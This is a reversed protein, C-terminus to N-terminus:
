SPCVESKGPQDGHIHARQYIGERELISSWRPTGFEFHWWEGSYVVFDQAWMAECLMRRLRRVPSDIQEFAATAADETFADFPTGLGLAVGDFSLTLDVTGGSMHPSPLEDDESPPALYGPPLLPDSYAAHFLESQLELSRWGDFIVLAFGNPLSAEVARLRAEAGARVFTGKQSHTWGAMRYAELCVFAETVDVLPEDCDGSVFSMASPEILQPMQKGVPLVRMWDVQLDSPTVTLHSQDFSPV